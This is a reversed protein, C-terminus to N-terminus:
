YTFNNEFAKFYLKQNKEKRQKYDNFVNELYVKDSFDLENIKFERKYFRQIYDMRDADNLYDNYELWILNKFCQERNM